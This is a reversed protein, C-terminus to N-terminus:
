WEREKVGFYNTSVGDFCVWKIFSIFVAVVITDVLFFGDLTFFKCILNHKVM